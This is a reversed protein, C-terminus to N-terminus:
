LVKTLILITMIITIFVKVSIAALRGLFAGLGATIARKPGEKRFLEFLFAGAFAGVLGGLL